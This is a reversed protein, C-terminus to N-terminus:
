FCSHRKRVDLHDDILDVFLSLIEAHYITCYEIGNPSATFRCLSRSSFSASTLIQYNQSKAGLIYELHPRTMTTPIDNPFANLAHDSCM